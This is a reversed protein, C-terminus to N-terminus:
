VGRVIFYRAFPTRHASICFQLHKTSDLLRIAGQGDDTVDENIVDMKEM